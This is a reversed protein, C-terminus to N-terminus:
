RRARIARDEETLFLANSESLHLTRLLEKKRLQIALRTVSGSYPLLHFLRERVAQLQKYALRILAVLLFLLGLFLVLRFIPGFQGPRMWIGTSFLRQLDRVLPRSIILTVLALAPVWLFLVVRPAFRLRAGACRDCIFAKEEHVIYPSLRQRRAVWFRYRAGPAQAHCQLCRDAEDASAATAPPTLSPKQQGESM